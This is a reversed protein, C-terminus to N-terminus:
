RDKAALIAELFVAFLGIFLIAFISGALIMWALSLWEPPISWGLDFTENMWNGFLLAIVVGLVGGLINMDVKTESTM